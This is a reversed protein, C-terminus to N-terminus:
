AVAPDKLQQCPKAADIKWQDGTAIQGCDQEVLHDLLAISNRDNSGRGIKEFSKALTIWLNLENMVHWRHAQALIGLRSLPSRFEDGRRFGAKGEDRDARRLLLHDSAFSAFEPARRANRKTDPCAELKECAVLLAGRAHKLPDPEFPRM